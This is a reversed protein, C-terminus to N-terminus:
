ININAIFQISIFFTAFNTFIGTIVNASILVFFNEYWLSPLSIIDASKAYKRDYRLLFNEM